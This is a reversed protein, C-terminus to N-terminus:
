QSTNKERHLHARRRLQTLLSCFQVCGDIFDELVRDLSHATVLVCEAGLCYDMKAGIKM